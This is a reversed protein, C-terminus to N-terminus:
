SINLRYGWLFVIELLIILSLSLVLMIKIRKMKYETNSEIYKVRLKELKDTEQMIVETAQNIREVSDGLLVDAQVLEGAALIRWDVKLANAVAMLTETDIVRKNTEIKSLTPRSVGILQALQGQSISKSERYKKIQDAIM